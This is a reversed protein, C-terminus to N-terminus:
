FIFNNTILYTDNLTILKDAVEKMHAQTDTVFYSFTVYFFCVCIFQKYIRYYKIM